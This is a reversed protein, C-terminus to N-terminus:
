GSAHWSRWSCVAGHSPRYITLDIVKGTSSFLMVDRDGTTLAVGPADGPLLDVAIVSGARPRSRM